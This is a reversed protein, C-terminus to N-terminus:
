KLQHYNIDDENSDCCTLTYDKEPLEPIPSLSIIMKFTRNRSNQYRSFVKLIQASYTFYNYIYEEEEKIMMMMM